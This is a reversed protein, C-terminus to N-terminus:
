DPRTASRRVEGRRGRDPLTAHRLPRPMTSIRCRHTRDRLWYGREDLEETAQTHIAQAKQIERELMQVQKERVGAYVRDRDSRAKDVQAHAVGVAALLEPINLVAVAEGRHVVQGPGVLFRALRGGVEPAIRIETTRVM